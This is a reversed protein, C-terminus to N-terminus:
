ALSHAAESTSGQLAKEPPFFLASALLVFIAGRLGAYVRALREM